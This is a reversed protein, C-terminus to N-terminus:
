LLFYNVERKKSKAQQDHRRSRRLISTTSQMGINIQTKVNLSPRRMRLGIWDMDMDVPDM